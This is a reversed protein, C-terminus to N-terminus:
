RRHRYAFLMTRGDRTTQAMSSLGGPTTIRVWAAVYAYRRLDLRRFVFTNRELVISPMSLQPVPPTSRCHQPAETVVTRYLLSAYTHILM